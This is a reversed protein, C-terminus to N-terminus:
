GALAAPSVIIKVNRDKHNALEEFGQELINDLGIGYRTIIQCRPAADIVAPTVRKWCALIADVDPALAVFEDEEGGIRWIEVGNFFM